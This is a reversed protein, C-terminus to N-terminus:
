WTAFRVQSGAAGAERQWGHDSDAARWIRGALAVQKVHLRVANAVLYHAVAWRRAQDSGAYSSLPLTVTAVEGDRGAARGAVVSAGFAHRLDFLVARDRSTMGAPGPRQSPLDQAHVTCTLGHPSYGTLASALTRGDTEHVAYADPFGSRQVAQAAAAIDMTQYGPVRVLADYFKNSAYYPDQIQARHGWGQSPRQQFLGVSDRDGGTLNLLKSEQLAASLAISVARPPLDRREAVAAIVSANETQETSLWVSYGRATATCGEPGALPSVGTHFAYYAAGGAAALVLLAALGRGNAAM